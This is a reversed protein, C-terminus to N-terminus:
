ADNFEKLYDELKEGYLAMVSDSLEIAIKPGHCLQVVMLIVDYYGARWMYSRADAAGAREAKDSAQWKLIMSAVCPLLASSNQSFFQNQPMAVFTNWIAADLDHREIRDGDAMDDFVQIAGWLMLFWDIASAPLNFTEQLNKQLSEASNM